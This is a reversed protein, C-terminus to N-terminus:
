TEEVKEALTADTIHAIHVILPQDIGPSISRGVRANEWESQTSVTQRQAGPALQVFREDVYEVLGIFVLQHVGYSSEGAGLPASSIIVYNGPELVPHARSSM